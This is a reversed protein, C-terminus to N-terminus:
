NTASYARGWSPRRGRQTTIQTQNSGDANMSYIHWQSNALCAEYAIKSGDPSFCPSGCNGDFYTLRTQNSGDANMVYVHANADRYSIFVISAGDPSYAPHSNDATTHTLQTIATGDRKMVCIQGSSAFAIKTGDPSFVPSVDSIGSTLQKQQHTQLDLLWIGHNYHGQADEQAMDFAVTSNDPSISPWNESEHSTTLKTLGSGDTNIMYIDCDGNEWSDFVIRTGDSSFSPTFGHAALKQADGGRPSITCIGPWDISEFVISETPVGYENKSGGGCGVFCAVVLLLILVHMKNMYADKLTSPNRREAFLVETVCFAGYYTVSM